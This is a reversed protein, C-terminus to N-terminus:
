GGLLLKSDAISFANRSVEQWIEEYKTDIIRDVTTWQGQAAYLVTEITLPLREFDSRIISINNLFMERHPGEVTDEYVVLGNHVLYYERLQTDLFAECTFNDKTTVQMGLDLFFQNKIASLPCGIGDQKNVHKMVVDHIAKSLLWKKLYQSLLTM